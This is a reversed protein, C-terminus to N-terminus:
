WEYEIITIDKKIHRARKREQKRSVLLFAFGMLQVVVIPMAAVFAMAGFSFEAVNGGLASAVGTVFPLVFAVSMAGTAVGGADIAIATFVKRNIFALIIAIVYMPIIIYIFNINYLVRLIGMMMAVAVGLAIAIMMTRSKILGGTTIEIQANLVHVAPEALVIVFGIVFGLPILIWKYSLMTIARGLANAIPVFGVDIVSLFLTMGVYTYLLGILIKIVQKKPLKIVFIQFVVFLIVIPILILGVEKLFKLIELGTLSMIQTINQPDAIASVTAADPNSLFLSYIMIALVPGISCIGILGFNDDEGSRTSRVASVGLGFALLFPASMPDTTVTGADFAIPLYAKPVFFMLLFALGYSVALIISLKIRFFVKAVALVMFVGLGIAALILFSWKGVGPVKAALVALDPEAITIVTGIVLCMILMLWIKKSKTLEAGINQGIPIMSVEAGMNFLGMGVILIVSSILFAYLYMRPVPAVFLALAVVIVAIPLVSITSEKLKGLLNRKM